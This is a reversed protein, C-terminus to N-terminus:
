LSKVLKGKNSNIKEEVAADTTNVSRSSLNTFEKKVVGIELKTPSTGRFDARFSVFCGQVPFRPMYMGKNHSVDFTTLDAWMM